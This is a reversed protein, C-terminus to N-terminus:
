PIIMVSFTRVVPQSTWQLGTEGARGAVQACGTPWTYVCEQGRTCVRKAM